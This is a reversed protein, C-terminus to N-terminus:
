LLGLQRACYPWQGWGASAQLIKGRKIQEAKAGPPTAAAASTRGPPSRSSCAATTATARTPRGTAAARAAPRAPGLDGPRESRRVHDAPRLHHATLHHPARGHDPARLRHRRPRRAGRHHDVRGRRHHDPAETTPPAVVEAATTPPATTVSSSTDWATRLERATRCRSPPRENTDAGPPCTTSCSSRSPPWPSRSPSPWAAAISGCPRDVGPEGPQLEVAVAGRRRHGPVRTSAPREVGRRSTAAAKARRKPPGAPARPVPVPRRPRAIPLHLWLDVARQHRAGPPGIAPKRDRGVQGQSCGSSTVCSRLRFAFLVGQSKAFAQEETLGSAPPLHCQGHGM